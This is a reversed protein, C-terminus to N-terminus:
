GASVSLWILEKSQFTSKWVYRGVERIGDLDEGVVSGLVPVRLDESTEGYQVILKNGTLQSFRLRGTPADSIREVVRIPAVSIM